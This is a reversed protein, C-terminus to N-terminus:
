KAPYEELCLGSDYIKKANERGVYRYHWPEYEIKTIEKKNAPYRLIFGYEHCHQMLWKQTETKEQGEDLDQYEFDVIDVALGTNHESKGPPALWKKAEREAEARSYGSAMQERVENEFLKAQKEASRYSSCVVLRHGAARCASLMQKLAEAAHKDVTANYENELTVLDPNFEKPIPHNENVLLLLDGNVDASKTM